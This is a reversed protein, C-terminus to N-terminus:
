ARVTIRTTGYTPGGRPYISDLELQYEGKIYREKIDALEWETLQAKPVNTNPGMGHKRKLDQIQKLAEEDNSHVPSDYHSAGQDGKLDAAGELIQNQEEDLNSDYEEDEQLVRM